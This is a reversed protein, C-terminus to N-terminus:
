KRLTAIIRKPYLFLELAEFINKCTLTSNLLTKTACGEDGLIAIGIASNKLMKSDNAENGISVVSKKNLSKIFKMKEKTHNKSKLIVIKVHLSVLEQKVSNNTDATIVFINFKQSLQYILYSIDDVLKGDKAITGNFDLVINKIEINKYNPIDIKM